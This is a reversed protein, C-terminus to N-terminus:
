AVGAILKIDCVGFKAPVNVGLRVAERHLPEVSEDDRLLRVHRAAVRGLEFRCLTPHLQKDRQAVCHNLRAARPVAM